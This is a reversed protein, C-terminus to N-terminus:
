LIFVRFYIIFSVQWTLFYFIYFYAFIGFGTVFVIFLAALPKLMKKLFDAARPKCRRILLGIGIPVTFGIILFTIKKFPLKVKGYDSTFLFSFIKFLKLFFHQALINPLIGYTM